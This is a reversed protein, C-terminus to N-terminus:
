VVQAPKTQSQGAADRGQPLTSLRHLDTVKMERIPNLDVFHRNGPRLRFLLVPQGAFLLNTWAQKENEIGGFVSGEPHPIGRDCQAHREQGLLSLNEQNLVHL